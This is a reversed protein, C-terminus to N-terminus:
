LEKKIKISEASSLMKSEWKDRWKSQFETYKEVQLSFLHEMKKLKGELEVLRSNLKNDPNKGLREKILLIENKVSDIEDAHEREIKIWKNDITEIKGSKLQVISAEAYCFDCDLGYIYFAGEIFKYKHDSVKEPNFRYSFERHCVPCLIRIEKKKSKFFNFM